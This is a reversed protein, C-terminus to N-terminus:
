YRSMVRVRNKNIWLKISKQTKEKSSNKMSNVQHVIKGYYLINYIYWKRTYVYMDEWFEYTFGKYKGSTIM